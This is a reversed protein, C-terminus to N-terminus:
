APETFWAINDAPVHVVPDGIPQDGSSHRYVAQELTWRDAHRAVLVGRITQDDPRKTHLEVTRGALKPGNTAQSRLAVFALAAIAAFAVLAALILAM